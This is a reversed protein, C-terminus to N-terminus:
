AAMPVTKGRPEAVLSLGSLDKDARTHKRRDLVGHLDLRHTLECQLPDPPRQRSVGYEAGYGIGSTRAPAIPIGIWASADFAAGAALLKSIRQFAQVIPNHSFCSSRSSACRLLRRVLFSLPTGGLYLASLTLGSRSVTGRSNSTGGAYLPLRAQQFTRPWRRRMWVRRSEKGCAIACGIAEM